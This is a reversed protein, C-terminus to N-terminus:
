NIKQKFEVNINFNQNTVENANASAKFTLTHTKEKNYNLTLGSSFTIKNNVEEVYTGDDLKVFVGDPLNTIKIVYTVNVESNNTVTLTYDQETIGSTLIIASNNGSADVSWTAGEIIGNGNAKNKYFAYTFSIFILMLFPLFMLIKKKM